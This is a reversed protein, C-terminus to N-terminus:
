GSAGKHGIPQMPEISNLAEELCSLILKSLFWIKGACSSAKHVKVGTLVFEVTTDIKM